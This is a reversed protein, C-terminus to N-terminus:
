EQSGTVEIQSKFLDHPDIVTTEAGISHKQGAGLYNFWYFSPTKAGQFMFESM